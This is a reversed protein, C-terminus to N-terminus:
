DSRRHRATRVCASKNSAHLSSGTSRMSRTIMSNPTRCSPVCLSSSRGTNEWNAGEDIWRKILEIQAPKLEKNSDVPPMRKDPDEALLRLYLQSADSTGAVVAAQGDREAFASERLDLRLETQREGVDPGHCRYCVDSLIPRIDRNYDVPEVDEALMPSAFIMALAFCLLRRVSRM